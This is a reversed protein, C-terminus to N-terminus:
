SKKKKLVKALTRGTPKGPKRLQPPLAKKKAEKLIELEKVGDKLFVFNTNRETGRKKYKEYKEKADMKHPSGKQTKKKM